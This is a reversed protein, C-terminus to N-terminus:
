PLCSSMLTGGSCAKLRYIAHMFVGPFSVSSGGGAGLDVSFPLGPFHVLSMGPFALFVPGSHM